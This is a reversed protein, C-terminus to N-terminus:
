RTGAAEKAGKGLRGSSVFDQVRACRDIDHIEYLVVLSLLTGM